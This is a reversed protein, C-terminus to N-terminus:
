NANVSSDYRLMLMPANIILVCWVGWWRYHSWFALFWHWGNPQQSPPELNQFPRLRDVLSIWEATPHLSEYVMAFFGTRYLMRATHLLKPNRFLIFFCDRSDVDFSVEFPMGQKRGAADFMYMLPFPFVRQWFLKGFLNYTHSFSCQKSEIVFEIRFMNPKMWVHGTALADDPITPRSDHTLLYLIEIVKSNPPTHSM